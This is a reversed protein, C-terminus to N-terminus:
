MPSSNQSDIPLLVEKFASCSTWFILAETGRGYTCILVLPVSAKLSTETSFWTVTCPLWNNQNISFRITGQGFTTLTEQYTLFINWNIDLTNFTQFGPCINKTHIWRHLNLRYFYPTDLSERYHEDTDDTLPHCILVTNWDSKSKIYALFLFSVLVRLKSYKWEECLYNDSSRTANKCWFLRQTWMQAHKWKEKLVKHEKSVLQDQM